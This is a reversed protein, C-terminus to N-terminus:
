KFLWDSILEIESQDIGFRSIIDFIKDDIPTLKCIKRATVTSAITQASYAYRQLTFSNLWVQIFYDCYKSSESVSDVIELEILWDMFHQPTIKM